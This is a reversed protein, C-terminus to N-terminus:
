SRLGNLVSSTQSIPPSDYEFLESETDSDSDQDSDVYNGIGGVEFVDVFPTQPADAVSKALIAAVRAELRKNPLSTKSDAPEQFFTSLEHLNQVLDGLDDGEANGASLMLMDEPEFDIQSPRSPVKCTDFVSIVNKRCLERLADPKPICWGSEQPIGFIDAEAEDGRVRTGMHMSMRLVKKAAMGGSITMPEDLVDLAQPALDTELLRLLPMLLESGLLDMPNHTQKQQFLVKLIQMSHVKLSPEKNLVLGMLLTVVHSWHDAGYHERLTAVSERIFDQNTRFRRKAYSTLIRSITHRGETEALRTVDLSFEQLANDSTDAILDRLCWPLLLTYLDRVRADSPEILRGDQIKSLHRLLKFTADCTASSRLGM